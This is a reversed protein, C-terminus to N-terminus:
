LNCIFYKLLLNVLIYEGRTRIYTEEVLRPFPNAMTLPIHPEPYEKRDNIRVDYMDCLEVLRDAITKQKHSSGVVM